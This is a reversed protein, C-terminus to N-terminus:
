RLPEAAQIPQEPELTVSQEPVVPALTSAQAVPKATFPAL